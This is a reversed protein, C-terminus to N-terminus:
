QITNKLYHDIANWLENTDTPYENDKFLKGDTMKTSKTIISNIFAQLIEDSDFKVPQGGTLASHVLQKSKIYYQWGQNKDLFETLLNSLEQDPVFTTELFDALQYLKNYFETLDFLSEMPFGFSPVDQWLWNTGPLPKPWPMKIDSYGDLMNFKAYFAQRLTNPNARISAPINPLKKGLSINGGRALINIQYIWNAWDQNITIRIVKHPTEQSITYESYHNATVVKKAMYEDDRRTLHSAGINTFVEKLRPGKFVWTNIVYELFHGHSGADFDLLIM